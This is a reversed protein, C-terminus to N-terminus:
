QVVVEGRMSPHRASQYAYTGPGEFTFTYGRPVEM